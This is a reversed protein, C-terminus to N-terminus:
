GTSEPKFQESGDEGYRGDKAEIILTPEFVKVCHWVGKPIQCGFIGQSPCLHIRETENGSADYFIEDMSGCIVVVSESSKTHRHIPLQTGPLLANLMRQSGDEASDRLDYNMRLRPNAAAQGFLRDILEKDIITMM